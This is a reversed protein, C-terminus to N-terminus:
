LRAPGVLTVAGRRAKWPIAGSSPWHPQAVVVAPVSRASKLMDLESQAADFDRLAVKARVKAARLAVNKPDAALGEDALEVAAAWDGMLLRAQVRTPKPLSPEEALSRLVDLVAPLHAAANPLAVEIARAAAAATAL